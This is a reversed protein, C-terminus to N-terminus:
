QIIYKGFETFNSEKAKDDDRTAEAFMNIRNKVEYDNPNLDLNYIDAKIEVIRPKSYNETSFDPFILKDGDRTINNQRALETSDFDIDKYEFNSWEHEHNSYLIRYAGNGECIFKLRFKIKFPVFAESKSTTYLDPNSDVVSQYQTYWKRVTGRNSDRNGRNSTLYITEGDSYSSGGRPGFGRFRLRYDVYSINEPPYNSEEGSPQFYIGGPSRRNGEYKDFSQAYNYPPSPISGTPGKITPHVCVSPPSPTPTPTPTSQGTGPNYTRYADPLFAGRTTSGLLDTSLPNGNFFTVGPPIVLAALNDFPEAVAAARYFDEAIPSTSADWDTTEYNRVATSDAVGLLLNKLTDPDPYSGTTLYQYELICAAVGAVTPGAASTGSFTNWRNGDSFQYTPQSSWTGYGLGFIDIAPGRSSYPDIAPTEESRQRAGVLISKESQQIGGFRHVFYDNPGTFSSAQQPSNYPARFFDYTSDTTIKNDWDASDYKAYVNCSNGASPIFHIGADTLSKAANRLATQATQGSDDITICWEYNSIPDNLAGGVALLLPLMNNDVFDSLKWGNLEPNRDSPPRNTTTGRITFSAIERIRIGISHPTGGGFAATVITPNKKGTTPNVPKSNHWEVIADACDTIGDENQMTIQRLSAKKALGGYIGGACSLVGAGHSTLLYSSQDINMPDRIDSGYNSWNMEVIRSIGPQGPHFYDPHSRHHGNPANFDNAEWAVIDIHEGTLYSNYNCGVMSPQFFDNKLGVNRLGNPNTTTVGDTFYKHIPSIYDSGPESFSPNKVTITKENSFSFLGGPAGSQLTPMLPEPRKLQDIGLVYINNLLEERESQTLRIKLLSPINKYVHVVEYRDGIEALFEDRVDDGILCLTYTKAEM